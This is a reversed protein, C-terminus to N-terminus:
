RLSSAPLPSFGGVARARFASFLADRMSLLRAPPPPSAAAAWPAQAPPRITSLARARSAGPFPLPPRPAARLHTALSPAHATPKTYPLPASPSPTPISHKSRSQAHAGPVPRPPGTPTRTRQLPATADIGRTGRLASRCQQPRSLAARRRRRSAGLNPTRPSCLFGTPRGEHGQERNGWSGGGWVDLLPLPSYRCHAYRDHNSKITGGWGGGNEKKKKYGMKDNYYLIYLSSIGLPNHTVM